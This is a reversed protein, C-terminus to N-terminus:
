DENLTILINEALGTEENYKIKVSYEDRDEEEILTSLSDAADENMTNREITLKYAKPILPDSERNREKYGTIEVKKLNNKAVEILKQIDEKRIKEGVYFEFNANFRNKEVETINGGTNIDEPREQMLEVDILMDILNDYDFLTTINEIQKNFTNELITEINKRTEKDLTELEISNEEDLVISNSFNNVINIKDSVNLEVSNTDNNVKITLYKSNNNNNEVEKSYEININQAKDDKTNIISISTSEKVEEIAREIKFDISNEKETNQENKIEVVKRNEENVLDVTLTNKEKEILTKVTTGQHEYVTIKQEQQGINNNKIEEIKEEIIQQYFDQLNQEEENLKQEIEQVKNSLEQIKNLIIEDDKLQELLKIYVNNFEEKTLKISYANTKLQKGDVQIIVGSQKSFKDSQIGEGLFKLYKDKLSKKDEKSFTILEEININKVDEIIETYNEESNVFQKIGDLRIHKSDNQFLYELGAIQEENNLIQIDKYDYNGNKDIQSDILLKMKNINNETNGDKSYIVNAEINSTYKNNQLLQETEKISESENITVLGEMQTFNQAIYKAFLTSSSKFLDTTIYLIALMILLLILVIISISIIIKKKRKRPIM